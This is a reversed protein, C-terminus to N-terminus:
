QAMSTFSWAPPLEYAGIVGTRIRSVRGAGNVNFETDFYKGQGRHTVFHDFGPRPEDNDEGKGRYAGMEPLIQSHRYVPVGMSEAIEITRDTSDSDILVIEDLLPVDDM